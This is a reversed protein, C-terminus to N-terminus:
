KKCLNLQWCNVKFIICLYNWRINFFKFEGKLWFILSRNQRHLHETRLLSCMSTPQSWSGPTAPWPSWWSRWPGRRWSGSGSPRGSWTLSTTRTTMTSRGRPPTTAFKRSTSRTSAVRSRRRVGYGGPQNSFFYCKLFLAIFLLFKGVDILKLQLDFQDFYSPLIENSSVKRFEHLSKSRNLKNSETAENNTILNNNQDFERYPNKLSLTKTLLKKQGFIASTLHKTNLSHLVKDRDIDEEVTEDKNVEVKNVDRYVYSTLSVSRELHRTTTFSLLPM